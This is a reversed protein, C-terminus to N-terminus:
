LTVLCGLQSIGLQGPSLLVPRCTGQCGLNTWIVAVCKYWTELTGSCTGAHLCCVQIGILYLNSIM